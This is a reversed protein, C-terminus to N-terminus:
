PTRLGDGGLRNPDYHERLGHGRMIIGWVLIIISLAALNAIWPALFLRTGGEALINGWTAAPSAFGAATFQNGCSNLPPCRWRMPM